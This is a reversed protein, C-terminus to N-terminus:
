KWALCMYLMTLIRHRNYGAEGGGRGSKQVNAIRARRKKVPAKRPMMATLEQEADFVGVM